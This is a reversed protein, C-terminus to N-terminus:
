NNKNEIMLGVSFCMEVGVMIAALVVPEAMLGVVLAMIPVLISLLMYSKSQYLWSYPMLHAGFIMAYVMLMKEPVASFVWMAILIYLIQNVSFIIGLKTLPNGKSEFDIHLLKSIGFALPMLPCACFFTYLNKSEIPLNTLHVLLIGAWIFVSALIFHLGKKQRKVCDSRLEELAKKQESFSAPQGINTMTKSDM